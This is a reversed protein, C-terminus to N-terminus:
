EKKPEEVAEGRALFEALIIAASHQDIERRLIARLVGVDAVKRLSVGLALRLTEVAPNGGSRWIMAQIVSPATEGYRQVYFNAATVHVVAAFRVGGPAASGGRAYEQRSVALLDEPAVDPHRRLADIAARKKEKDWTDARYSEALQLPPM